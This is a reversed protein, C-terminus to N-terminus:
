HLILWADESKTWWSPLFMDGDKTPNWLNTEGAQRWVSGWLTELEKLLLDLTLWCGASSSGYIESVIAGSNTGPWLIIDGKKLRIQFLVAETAKMLTDDRLKRCLSKPAPLLKGQVGWLSWGDTDAEDVSDALMRPLISKQLAPLDALKGKQRDLLGRSKLLQHKAEQREVLPLCGMKLCGQTLHLRHHHKPKYGNPYAMGYARQHEKQVEELKALQQVSTIERWMQKLERLVTCCKHLCTFSKRCLETDAKDQLAVCMYYHLLPVLSWCDRASGRFHESDHLTQTFLRKIKNASATGASPCMWGDAAAQQAMRDLSWGEGQLFEVVASAEVQAIGGSCFYAHLADNCCNSPPMRIRRSPSAMLSGPVHLLGYVIEAEKRAGVGAIHPLDDVARFLAADSTQVCRALSPEELSVVGPVATQAWKSILNSCFLCPRLGSSGKCTYILRQADMDAVYLSASAITVQGTLGSAM